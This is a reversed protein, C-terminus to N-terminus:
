QTMEIWAGAPNLQFKDFFGTAVHIQAAYQGYCAAASPTSCDSKGSRLEIIGTGGSSWGASGDGYFCIPTGTPNAPVPTCNQGINGCQSLVVDELIVTEGQDTSWQGGSCACGGPNFYARITTTNGSVTPCTSYIKGSNMARARYMSLHDVVQSWDAQLKARGKLPFLNPFGVAMLIALIAIIILLEMLSFAKESPLM